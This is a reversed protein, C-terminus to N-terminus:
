KVLVGVGGTCDSNESWWLKYRRGKLGLFKAVIRDVKGRASM